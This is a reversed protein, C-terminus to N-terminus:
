TSQPLPRVRCSLSAVLRHNLDVPKNGKKELIRISGHVKSRSSTRAKNMQSHFLTSANGEVIRWLLRQDARTALDFHGGTLLSPRKM